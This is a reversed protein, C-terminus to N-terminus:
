LQIILIKIRIITIDKLIFNIISVLFFLYMHFISIIPIAHENMNLLTNHINIFKFEPIGKFESIGNIDYPLVFKTISIKLTATINETYILFFIIKFIFLCIAYFM